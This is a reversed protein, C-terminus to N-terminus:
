YNENKFLYANNPYKALLKWGKEDAEEIAKQDDSGLLYYYPYDVNQYGDRSLPSLWNLNESIRHFNLSPSLLWNIGISVEKIQDTQLLDNEVAKLAQKNYIDYDWEFTKSFNFAKFNFLLLALWVSNLILQINEGNKVENFRQFLFLIYVLFLPAYVLATRGYLFQTGLILHQLIQVAATLCLLLLAEQYFRFRAITNKFTDYIFFLGGALLTIAVMLSLSESAQYHQGYQMNWILTEVSDTWFSSEGGFLDGSINRLPIFIFVALISTVILVPRLLIGITKTGGNGEQLWLIVLLMTLAVFAYLFTFNAYVAFAAFILTRWIHHGNNLERYMYLHYVSALMLGLGMGYGRALAFFDFFYVQLCLSLFALIQIGPFRFTKAISAAYWFYVLSFLVNPLRLSLTSTGFLLTSFKILLTNLIHNNPIHPPKYIIINWWSQGVYHLYTYAEDHTVSLKLARLLVLSFFGLSLVVMVWSVWPKRIKKNM